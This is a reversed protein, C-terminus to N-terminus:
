TPSMGHVRSAKLTRRSHLAIYETVVPYPFSHVDFSDVRLLSIM